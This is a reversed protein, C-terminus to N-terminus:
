GEVYGLERLGQRFAEARASVSSPPTAGLFGIRPVKKPQQAEAKATGVGLAIIILFLRLIKKM